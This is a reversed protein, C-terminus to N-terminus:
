FRVVVVVVHQGHHNLTSKVRPTIIVCFEYMKRRSINKKAREAVCFMTAREATALLIQVIEIDGGTTVPM